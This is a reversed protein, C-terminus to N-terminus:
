RPKVAEMLAYGLKGDKVAILAAQAFGKADSFNVNPFDLKKLGAAIEAGLLKGQIQRVLETLAHSHDEIDEVTLGALKLTESYSEVPQADGICAIWSFLGDLEPIPGATKTL